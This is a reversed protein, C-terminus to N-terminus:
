GTVCWLLYGMRKKIGVAMAAARKSGVAAMAQGLQMMCPESRSSLAQLWIMPRWFGNIGAAAESEALTEVVAVWFAGALALLAAGALVLLYGVSLSPAPSAPAKKTQQASGRCFGNGERAKLFSTSERSILYSMRKPFPLRIMLIIRM